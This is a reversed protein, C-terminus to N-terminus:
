KSLSILDLASALVGILTAIAAFPMTFLTLFISKDDQGKSAGGARLGLALYLRVILQVTAFSTAYLAIALYSFLYLLAPLLAVITAVGAGPTAPTSELTAGVISVVRSGFAYSVAFCMIAILVVLALAIAALVASGPPTALHVLVRWARGTRSWLQSSRSTSQTVPALDSAFQIQKWVRQQWRWIQPVLEGCVNAVVALGCAAMVISLPAMWLWQAAGAYGEGQLRSTLAVAAGFGFLVVLSLAPAYIFTALFLPKTSPKRTRATVSNTLSVVLVIALTSLAVSLVISWAISSWQVGPSFYYGQVLVLSAALSSQPDRRARVWFNHEYDDVARRIRLSVEDNNYYIVAAGYGTDIDEHELARPIAEKHGWLWPDAEAEIRSKCELASGDGSMKIGQLVLTAIPVVAVAPAIVILMRGCKGIGSAVSRAALLPSARCSIRVLHVLPLLQRELRGATRGKRVGRPDYDAAYAVVGAAALAVSGGLAIWTVIKSVEHALGAISLVVLLVGAILIVATLAM